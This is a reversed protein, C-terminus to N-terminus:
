ICFDARYGAMLLQKKGPFSRNGM